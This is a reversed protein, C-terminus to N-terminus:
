ERARIFDSSPVHNVVEISAAGLIQKSEPRRYDELYFVREVGGLNILRKACLPCPLHTCFAIKRTSRPVDCAITANEEAHLCGCNGVAADGTRDCQNPLGSANGNYGVSLVKRYDHSAIVAGVQLRLCTSRRALLWAMQMYIDEFSPRSM